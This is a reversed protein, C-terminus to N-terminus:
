NFFTHNHNEDTKHCEKQENTKDTEAIQYNNLSSTNIIGDAM